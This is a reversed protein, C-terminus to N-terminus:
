NTGSLIAILESKTAKNRYSLGLTDAKQKLKKLTYSTYDTIAVVPEIQAQPLKDTKGLLNYMDSKYYQEIVKANHPEEIIGTAKNRFKIM